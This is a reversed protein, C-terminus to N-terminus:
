EWTASALGEFNFRGSTTADQLKGTFTAAATSVATTGERKSLDERFGGRIQELPLLAGFEASPREGAPPAGRSVLRVVFAEDLTGDDTKVRLMMDVGLEAPVTTPSGHFSGDRKATCSTAGSEYTLRFSVGVTKGKRAGTTWRLTARYEPALGDIFARPSLPADLEACTGDLDPDSSTGCAPLALAVVLGLSLVLNRAM